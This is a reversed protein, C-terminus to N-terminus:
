QLTINYLLPIIKQALFLSYENNQHIIDILYDNTNFGLLLDFRILSLGTECAVQAIELNIFPVLHKYHANNLHATQLFIRDKSNLRSRLLKVVSHYSTHFENLMVVLPLNKPSLVEEMRAADWFNSLFILDIGEENTSRQKFESLALLINEVSNTTDNKFRHTKWNNIYDSNNSVGWHIMYGIRKVNHHSCLLPQHDHSFYDNHVYETILKASTDVESCNLLPALGFAYLRASTSDGIIYLGRNISREYQPNGFNYIYMTEDLSTIFSSAPCHVAIGIIYHCSNEKTVGILGEFSDASCQLHVQATYHINGCYDGDHLTFMDCRKSPHGPYCDHLLKDIRHSKSRGIHVDNCYGYIIGDNDIDIKFTYSIGQLIINDKQFSRKFIFSWDDISVANICFLM